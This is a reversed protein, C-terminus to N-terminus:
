SHYIMIQLVVINGAVAQCVEEDDSSMDDECDSKDGADEHESDSNAKADSEDSDSSANDSEGSYVDSDPEDSGKEDAQDDVYVSRRARKAEPLSAGGKVATNNSNSAEGGGAIVSSDGDTKSGSLAKQKAVLKARLRARTAQM